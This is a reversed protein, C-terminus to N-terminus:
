TLSRRRIGRRYAVAPYGLILALSPSNGHPIGLQRCLSKDRKLVPPAAGIMTSGLGMSEAALMAYTCAISAEVPDAFPSHDFILM